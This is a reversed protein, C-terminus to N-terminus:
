AGMAEVYEDFYEYYTWRAKRNINRRKLLGRWKSLIGPNPDVITVSRLSKNSFTAFMSQALRDADPLSYGCIVIEEAEHLYEYAKAM